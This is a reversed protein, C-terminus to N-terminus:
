KHCAICDNDAEKEEHCKMCKNMTIKLPKSPPRSSEGIDGHCINCEIKGIIVHMRHSFYVDEPVRYLREWDIEEGSKIYEILKGEEKSEGLPEEHCSLCTELTPKGSSAHEKYYPHCDLCELDNEAHIKHNFAIPQRVGGWDFGLIVALVIIM